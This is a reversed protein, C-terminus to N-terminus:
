GNSVVGGDDPKRVVDLYQRDLGIIRVEKRRGDKPFLVNPDFSGQRYGTVAGVRGEMRRREAPHALEFIWRDNYKVETGPALYSPHEPTIKEYAM